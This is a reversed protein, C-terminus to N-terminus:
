CFHYALGAGVFDTSQISSNNLAQIRTYFVDASVNPSLDYNVGVTATPLLKKTTGSASYSFSNVVVGNERAIYSGRFKEDQIVYAAGLKGYVSVDTSVPVIGKATLDVVNTKLSARSSVTAVGFGADVTSGYSYTYNDSGSTTHYKAWGLEAAFNTNFQYGAFIRGALGEAEHDYIQTHNNGYGLQGGIYANPQAAFASHAVVTLFGVAAVGVIIKKVQM